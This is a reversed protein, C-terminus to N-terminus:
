AAGESQSVANRQQEMTEIQLRLWEALAQELEFQTGTRYFDDITQGDSTIPIFRCPINESRHQEPVFGILACENCPCRWSPSCFNPCVPSDQFIAPSRWPFNKSHGYGGDKLFGLEFKLLDLIDRGDQAM